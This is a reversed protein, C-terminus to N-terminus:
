KKAGEEKMFRQLERFRLLNEYMEDIEESTYPEVEKGLDREINRQELFEETM